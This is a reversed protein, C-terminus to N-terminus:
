GNNILGLQNFTNFNLCVCVLSAFTCNPMGTVLWVQFRKHYEVSSVQDNVSMSSIEVQPTCSDGPPVASEDVIDTSKADSCVPSSNSSSSYVAINLAQCTDDNLSDFSIGASYYRMQSSCCAPVSSSKHIVPDNEVSSPMADALEGCSTDRAASLRRSCSNCLASGSDLSLARRVSSTRIPFTFAPCNGSRRDSPSCSCCAVCHCENHFPEVIVHSSMPRSLMCCAAPHCARAETNRQDLRCVGEDADDASFLRKAFKQSWESAANELCSTVAHRCNRLRWQSCFRIDAASASKCRGCRGVSVSPVQMAQRFSCVDSLKLKRNKTVQEVVVCFLLLATFEGAQLRDMFTDTDM